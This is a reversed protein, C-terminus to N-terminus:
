SPLCVYVQPCKASIILAMQRNHDKYVLLTEIKQRNVTNLDEEPCQKIKRLGKPLEVRAGGRGCLM